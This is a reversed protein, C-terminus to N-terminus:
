LHDLIWKLYHRVNTYVEPTGCELGWSFVGIQTWRKRDCHEKIIRKLMLPGGSEPSCRDKGEQGVTCVNNSELVLSGSDAHAQKCKAHEMIKTALEQLKITRNISQNGEEKAYGWGAITVNMDLYKENPKENFPLCITNAKRGIEKDKNNYAHKLKLLAINHKFKPEPEYKEHAIKEIVDIEEFGDKQDSREAGIKVRLKDFQVESDYPFLCHAATLVVSMTILSGGCNYMVVTGNDEVSGIMVLWPFERFEHDNNGDWITIGSERTYGCRKANVLKRKPHSKLSGM